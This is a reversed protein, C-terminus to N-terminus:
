EKTKRGRTERYTLHSHMFVSSEAYATRKRIRPNECVWNGLRILEGKRANSLNRYPYPTLSVCVEEVEHTTDNWGKVSFKTRDVGIFDIGADQLQKEAKRFFKEKESQQWNFRM